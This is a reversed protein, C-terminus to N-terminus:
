AACNAKTGGAIIDTVTMRNETLTGTKDSCIVNIAGITECAAM